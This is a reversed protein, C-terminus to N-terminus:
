DERMVVPLHISRLQNFSWAPSWVGHGCDTVARVRWHYSGAPLPTAPAFSTSSVESDIEPSSFDEDDDVQIRYASAGTVASWAFTPVTGCASSGDPPSSLEPQADNVVVELAFDEAFVPDEYPGHLGLHTAAECSSAEPILEGSLGPEFNVYLSVQYDEPVDNLHAETFRDNHNM